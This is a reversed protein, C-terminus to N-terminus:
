WEAGELIYGAVNAVDRAAASVIRVRDPDHIDRAIAAFGEATKDVHESAWACAAAWAARWVKEADGTPVAGRPASKTAGLWAVFAKAGDAEGM